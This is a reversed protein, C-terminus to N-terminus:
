AERDGFERFMQLLAVFDKGRYGGALAMAMFERVM